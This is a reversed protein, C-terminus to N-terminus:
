FLFILFAHLSCLIIINYYNSHQHIYKFDPNLMNYTCAGLALVNSYNVAEQLLM